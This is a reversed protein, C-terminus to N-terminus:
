KMLGNLKLNNIMPQMSHNNFRQGVRIWLLGAIPIAPAYKAPLVYTFSADVPMNLVGQGWTLIEGELVYNSVNADMTLELKSRTTQTLTESNFTTASMGTAYAGAQALSGGLSHGTLMARGGHDTIHKQLAQANNRALKHQPTEGIGSLQNVSEKIDKPDSLNTGRLAYVGERGRKCRPHVLNANIICFFNM